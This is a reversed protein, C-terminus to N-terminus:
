PKGFVGSFRPAIHQSFPPAKGDINVFVMDQWQAVRVPMLGLQSRDLGQQTHSQEGGVRPTNRLEGDLAYRWAHWPCSISKLGHAKKMLVQIGRHRCINHFVRISKDPQRVILLPWGALDVPVADGVDPVESGVGVACWVRPFLRTREQEFFAANYFEGPLGQAM